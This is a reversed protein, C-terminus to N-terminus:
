TVIYNVERSWRNSPRARVDGLYIKICNEFRIDDKGLIIGRCFVFIWCSCIGQVWNTVNLWRIGLLPSLVLSPCGLTKSSLKSLLKSIGMKDFLREFSHSYRFEAKIGVTASGDSNYSILYWLLQNLQQKLCKLGYLGPLGSIEFSKQCDYIWFGSRAFEPICMRVFRCDM